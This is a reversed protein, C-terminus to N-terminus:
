RIISLTLCPLMLYWKKLRQYSEVQSQVWIERTAYWSILPSRSQRPTSNLAFNHPECSTPPRWIIIYGRHYSTWILQLSSAPILIMDWCRSPGLAGPQAAWSFPFNLSHYGSSHPDIHQLRQETELERECVVKEIFQSTYKELSSHENTMITDNHKQMCIHIYLQEHSHLVRAM